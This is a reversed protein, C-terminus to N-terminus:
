RTTLAGGKGVPRVVSTYFALRFTLQRKEHPLYTRNDCAREQRTGM